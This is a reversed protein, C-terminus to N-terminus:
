LHDPQNKQSIWLLAEEPDRFIRIQLDTDTEVSIEWMRGLGFVIDGSVVVGLRGNGLEHRSDKVMSVLQSVENPQLHSLELQRHDIMVNRGPRWMPHSMLKRHSSGINELSGHGGTRVVMCDIEKDYIIESTMEPEQQMNKGQINVM